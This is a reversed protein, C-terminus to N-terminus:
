IKTYWLLMDEPTSHNFIRVHANYNNKKTDKEAPTYRCTIGIYKGKDKATSDYAAESVFPM